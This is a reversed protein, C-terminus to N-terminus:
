WVFLIVPIGSNYSINATCGWVEALNNIIVEETADIYGDAAAIDVMDNVFTQMRGHNWQFYEAVGRASDFFQEAAGDSDLGGYKAWCEQIMETNEDETLSSDVVGDGDQDKEFTYSVLKMCLEEIEDDTTEGDGYNSIFIFMYNMDHFHGWKMNDSFYDLRVAYIFKHKILLFV